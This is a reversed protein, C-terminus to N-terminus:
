PLGLLQRLLAGALAGGASTATGTAVTGSASRLKAFIGRAEEQTTADIGDLRDLEDEARDLLQSFSVYNNIDGAAVQANTANVIQLITPAAPHNGRVRDLGASTLRFESALSIRESMALQDIERAPDDFLLLGEHALDGLARAVTEVHEHGFRGSVENILAGGSDLISSGAGSATLGYLWALVDDSSPAATAREPTRIATVKRSQGANRGAASLAFVISVTTSNSPRAHVYSAAQLDLIDAESPSFDMAGPVDPKFGLVGGAGEILMFETPRSEERLRNDARVIAELLRQQRLELVM